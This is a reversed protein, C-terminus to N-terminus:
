RGGGRKRAGAFRGLKPLGGLNVRYYGGGSEALAGATVLGALIELVKAEPVRTLWFLRPADPRYYFQGEAVHADESVMLLLLKTTPEVDLGLVEATLECPM